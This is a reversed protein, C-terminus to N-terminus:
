GPACVVRSRAGLDRGWDRVHNGARPDPNQPIEPNAPTHDEIAPAFSADLKSSGVHVPVLHFPFPFLVFALHFFLPALEGVVIKVHNIAPPLLQDSFNLLAVANSAVFGFLLGVLENLAQPIRAIRGTRLFSRTSSTVRLRRNKRLDEM